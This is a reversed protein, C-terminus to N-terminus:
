DPANALAGRLAGVRPDDRLADSKELTQLKARALTYESTKELALRACLLAAAGRQPHDPFRTGFDSLLATVTRLRGGSKALSALRLTAVAGAPRFAANQTLSESTTQLAGTQDGAALQRAVVDQSLRMAVMTNPWLRVRALVAEREDLTDHQAVFLESIADLARQSDTRAHAFAVDLQQEFDRKDAHALVAERALTENFPAFGIRDHFRYLTAGCVHVALMVVYGWVLSAIPWPWGMRVVLIVCAAALGISVPLMLYPWRLAIVMQLQHLPSLAQALSDNLLMLSLAAPLLALACLALLEGWPSGLLQDIRTLTFGTVILLAVFAMFPRSWLSRFEEITIPPVQARGNASCRFIVFSFGILSVIALFQIFLGLLMPVFGAMGTNEGLWFGNSAIGSLVTYIGLASLVSSQAPFLVHQKLTMM